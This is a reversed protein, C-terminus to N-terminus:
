FHGFIDFGWLVKANCPVWVYSDRLIELVDLFNPENRDANFKAVAAELMSGDELDEATIKANPNMDSICIFREDETKQVFFAVTEAGNRISCIARELFSPFSVIM